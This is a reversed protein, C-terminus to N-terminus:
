ITANIMYVCNSFAYAGVNVEGYLIIEEIATGALANEGIINVSEPIDISPLSSCGAFSNAGIVKLTLPLEVSSLSACGSFTGEPVADINTAAALNVTEVQTNALAGVSLTTNASATVVRVEASLAGPSIAGSITVSPATYAPIPITIYVSASVGNVLGLNIARVYILQSAGQTLGAISPILTFPGGNTLTSSLTTWTVANASWQYHTTTSGNSVGASVSIIIGDASLTPAPPPTYIVVSVPGASSSTGGSNVARLLISYTGGSLFSFDLPSAADVPSMATWTTGSNTSYQYNTISTDSNIFSVQTGSVSLGTPALPPLTLKYVIGNGSSGGTATTGYLENGVLIPSFPTNGDVSLSFNRLNTYSTGDPKISFITGNGNAGGGSCTGYLTNNYLRLTSKPTSGNTNIGSANVVEFTYLVNFGTGDPNISFITGTQNTGAYGCMGYLKGNYEVLVNQSPFAGTPDNWTQSPSFSYIQTYANNNNLDIYYINGFGHGGSSSMSYLKRTGSLQIFGASNNGLDIGPPSLNTVNNLNVGLSFITGRNNLGGIYSTGYLLQSTTDYYLVCQPVVYNVYNLSSSSLDYYFINQRNTGYLRNNLLVLGSQPVDGDNGGTFSYVISFTASALTTSISFIAGKNNAGGERCTGYLKNTAADFCLPTTSSKCGVMNAYVYSM